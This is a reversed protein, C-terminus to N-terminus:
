FFDRFWVLNLGPGFEVKGTASRGITRKLPVLLMEGTDVPILLGLGM